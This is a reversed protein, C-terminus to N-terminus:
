IFIYTILRSIQSGLELMELAIDLNSLIPQLATVFVFGEPDFNRSSLDSGTKITFTLVIVGGRSGSGGVFVAKVRNKKKKRELTIKAMCYEISRGSARCLEKDPISQLYPFWSLRFRFRSMCGVCKTSIFSRIMVQKTTM